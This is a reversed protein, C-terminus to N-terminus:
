RATPLDNPTTRTIVLANSSSDIGEGNQVRVTLKSAGTSFVSTPLDARLLVASHPPITRTREDLKLTVDDRVHVWMTAATLACNFTVRLRPGQYPLAERTKIRQDPHPTPVITSQPAIELPADTNNQIELVAQLPAADNAETASVYLTVAVPPGVVAGQAGVAITLALLCGFLMRM